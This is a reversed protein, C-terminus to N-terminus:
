RSLPDFLTGDEIRRVFRGFSVARSLRIGYDPSNEIGSPDAPWDDVLQQLSPLDMARSILDSQRMRELEAAIENKEAALHYIFDASQLGGRRENLVLDPLLGAMAARILSRTDGGMCYFEEPVSFCFEMVRKDSTPDNYEIGCVRRISSVHMGHDGRRVGLIRAQRGDTIRFKLFKEQRSIGFQEAFGTRLGTYYGSVRPSKGRVRLALKFLSPPLLQALSQKFISSFSRGHRQIQRALGLAAIWRGQCILGSVAYDGKWSITMNGMEGTMIMRLGRAKAEHLIAQMWISNGPNFVPHSLAAAMTDMVPFLLSANNPILVHRINPYMSAVAAAYPGEDNYTGPLISMNIPVVSVATFSTLARGGSALQAAALASVSSSDLGGSLHSGACDQYESLRDRIAQNLVARLGEAYEQEARRRPGSFRLLPLKEPQWFDCLTVRGREFVLTHGSPVVFISKFFTRNSRERVTVLWEALKEEEVRM